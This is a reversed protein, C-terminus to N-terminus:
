IFHPTYSLSRKCQVPVTQLRILLTVSRGGTWVLGASGTRNQGALLYLKSGAVFASQEQDQVSGFHIPATYISPVEAFGTCQLEMHPVYELQRRKRLCVNFINQRSNLACKRGQM